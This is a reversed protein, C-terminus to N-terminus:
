FAKENLVLTKSLSTINKTAIKLRYKVEIFDIILHNSINLKNDLRRITTSSIRRGIKKRLILLWIRREDRLTRFTDSFPIIGCRMKRCNKHGSNIARGIQEDIQELKQEFGAPPPFTAQAQLEQVQSFINNSLLNKKVQIILDIM